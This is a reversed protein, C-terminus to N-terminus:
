FEQMSGTSAVAPKRSFMRKAKGALFGILALGACVAIIQWWNLKLVGVALATLYYRPFRGLFVALAYRPRSYAGPVALVRDAAFPIALANILLVILFPAQNFWEAIKEYFRTRVLRRVRGLRMLWALAHYDALSAAVTALSALLAVLWVPHPERTAGFVHELLVPLSETVGFRELVWEVLGPMATDSAMFMVGMSVNLPIFTTALSLYITGIGLTRFHPPLLATLAAICALYLVYLALWRKPSLRDVGLPQEHPSVGPIDSVGSDTRPSEAM